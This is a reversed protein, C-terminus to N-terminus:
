AAVILWHGYFRRPKIDIETLALNTSGSVTHGHAPQEATTTNVEHAHDEEPESTTNLTHGHAAEQGTTLDVGHAHSSETGTDGAVGHSHAAEEESVVTFSHFHAPQNAISHVHNPPAGQGFLALAGVAQAGSSGTSGGHDHAGNQTTDGSVQHTHAGNESTTLNVPHNHGGADATNGQVSHGHEGGESTAGNVEHAHGGAQSTTAQVAHDHAGNESTVGSVGHGHEFNRNDTGTLTGAPITGAGWIPVDRLDWVQFTQGPGAGFKAGLLPYDDFALVSGDARVRNLPLDDFGYPVLDGVNLSAALDVRRIAATHCVVLIHDGASLPEGFTITSPPTFTWTSRPQRSGQNFLWLQNQQQATLTQLVIQTEGGTATYEEEGAEAKGIEAGSDIQDEDPLEQVRDDKLVLPKRIAM